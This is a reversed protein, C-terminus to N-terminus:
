KKSFEAITEAVAEAILESASIAVSRTKLGSGAPASRASELLGETTIPAM